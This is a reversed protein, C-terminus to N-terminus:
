GDTRDEPNNSLWKFVTDAVFLRVHGCNNCATFASTLQMTPNNYFPQGVLNVSAGDSTSITWADTGCLPCPAQPNVAKLFRVFDDFGLIIEDNM